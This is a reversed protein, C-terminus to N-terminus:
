RPLHSPNQVARESQGPVPDQAGSALDLEAAVGGEFLPKTKLRFSNCESAAAYVHLFVFEPKWFTM